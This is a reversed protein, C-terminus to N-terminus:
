ETGVNPAWRPAQVWSWSMIRVIVPSELVSNSVLLLTMIVVPLDIVDGNFTRNGLGFLRM